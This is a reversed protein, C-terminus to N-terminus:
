RCERRRSSRGRATPRRWCALGIVVLVLLGANGAGADLSCGPLDSSSGPQDDGGTGGDPGGGPNNGDSGPPDNGLLGFFEAAHLTSCIKMDSFYAGISAPCMASGDNGIAVAHGMNPVLYTEVVVKSGAKYQARMAPGVTDMVDATADTGWVDTWQKVLEGENMTKVTSDTSGHWIQVRPREGTFTAAGRVLDGWQPATKSVGPSQCSYAGNVDTACRYPIGSMISGAAFREPWTALMVSVFAAGASFGVIYVRKPDSGHSAIATDIMSLVSQNEGKGRELNATDGYEGAWNFCRVPNNDSSQEPYVVTFQHEDALKNWGANVMASAMQTCGHMVVVLPRGSPLNDPVYEYMALAGPNSGFSTVAKMTAAEASSAFLAILIGIIRM